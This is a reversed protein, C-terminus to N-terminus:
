KKEEGTPANNLIDSKQDWHRLAYLVQSGKYSHWGMVSLAIVCLAQSAGVINGIQSADCKIATAVACGVVVCVLVVGVLWLVGKALSVYPNIKRKDLADVVEQALNGLAM